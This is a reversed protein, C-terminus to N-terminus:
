MPVFCAAAAGLHQPAQFIGVAEAADVDELTGVTREAELLKTAIRLVGAAPGQHPVIGLV